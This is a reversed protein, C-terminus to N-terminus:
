VYSLLEKIFKDKDIYGKQIGYALEKYVNERDNFTSKYQSEQRSASCILSQYKGLTEFLSEDTSICVEQILSTLRGDTDKMIQMLQVLNTKQIISENISVKKILKEDGRLENVSYHYKHMSNPTDHLMYMISATIDRCPEAYKIWVQFFRLFASLTTREPMVILFHTHAKKPTGILSEDDTDFASIVDKDHNIYVYKYIPHSIVWDIFHRHSEDELPYLMLLFANVRYTKKEDSNVSFDNFLLNQTNMM